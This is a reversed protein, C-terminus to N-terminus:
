IPTGKDAEVEAGSLARGYIRIEDIKGTFYENGGFFETGGIKLNGIGAQVNVASRTDVLAGNVYLRLNTGDNTLALHTWTNLPTVSNYFAYSQVFKHNTIMGEPKGALEGGDYLAYGYDEANPHALIAAFTRSETPDIWAELTFNKLRLDETGTVTLQAKESAKFELAGGYKGGTAWKAGEIKAEHAGASDPATTGSGQNFSYAAIPGPQAKAKTEFTMDKGYTVGGANTAVIRFHYTSGATLGSIGKSVEQASTGSGASSETTSTGYSSTLGYEFRYTTALENPNVTGNLTAGAESVATAAKTAVAAPPSKLYADVLGSQVGAKDENYGAAMCVTTVPCSIAYLSSRWTEEPFQLVQQVWETGTWREAFGVSRLTAASEYKGVAECITTTSCSIGELQVGKAGEPLPMSQQEWKSGNWRQAYLAPSGNVKISAAVECVSSSPCSVQVPKNDLVGGTPMPLTEVSWTSGNWRDAFFGGSSGMAWPGVAVCATASACSVGDLYGESGAPVPASQLEWKTGNWREVLPSTHWSSNITYGSAECFSSTPCSVGLLLNFVGGEPNPISQLAWKSGNWAWATTLTWNSPPQNYGVAECSTAASCSVARATTQRAEAPVPLLQSEWEYGNWEAGEPLPEQESGKLRTDTGVAACSTGSTCSIGYLDGQSASGEPNGVTSAGWGPTFLRDSSIRTGAWNTAVVRFHYNVGFELGSVVASVIAPVSGSGASQEATKSGYATTKGYEFYYTAEVGHPNVSARLTASTGPKTVAPEPTASPREQVYIEHDPSYTTGEVSTAVVRYHVIGEVEGTTQSVEAVGSGSDAEPIPVSSGYSTTPGYEFRYHTDSQQGDITAKLTASLKGAVASVQTIKPAWASTTFQKDGGFSTGASNQAVLRYHYTTQGKLGAINQSVAQWSPGSGAGLLSTSQGYATTTGYEFHYNTVIGHPSVQGQLNVQLPQFENAGLTEAYPATGLRPGVTLGMADAAEPMEVYFINNGCKIETNGASLIGLATHGGGTFVPGGSDGGEACVPYLEALHYEIVGSIVMKVTFDLGTVTGCSSGTTYGSHCAYEGVYSWSESDIPYEQNEGWWAVESPWFPKDWASGNANIKAWDGGPWVWEEMEGIRVPYGSADMSHWNVRGDACHGATLMFRNGYVNGLAKFAATCGIGKGEPGIGVGGRLPNSCIHIGPYCSLPGVQTSQVSEKRVEVSVSEAGAVTEVRAEQDASAGPDESIVVSNIQPDVSTRLLGAEILPLLARDIREHAAKLEAWSFRAPVTRFDGALHDRTFESDLTARSSNPLMPVVFEGSENDFWVGAYHKGLSGKLEAVVGAGRDQTVLHREAAQASVGFDHQYSRVEYPRVQIANASADRPSLLSAGLAVLLLVGVAFAMAMRVPVRTVRQRCGESAM